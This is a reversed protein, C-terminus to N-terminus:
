VSQWEMLENLMYVYLQNVQEFKLIHKAILYTWTNITFITLLHYYVSFDRLNSTRPVLYKIELKLFTSVFILILLKKGTLCVNQAQSLFTEFLLVNKLVGFVYSGCDTFVLRLSSTTLILNIVCM